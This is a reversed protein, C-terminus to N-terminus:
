LLEQLASRFEAEEDVALAIRRVPKRIGFLGEADVARRLEILVNPESRRPAVAASEADSAQATRAGEITDRAVRARFLLGYRVDLGDPGILVPRLGISQALGILWVMGYLSMGTAVWAGLRSWHGILLHVPLVEMLSALAIVYLLEVQGSKKHLTFARTDAPVHAKARWCFLAYYLINLEIGILRAIGPAPIVSELAARMSDVPDERRDATRRSRQRVKAVVYAILGAECLGGVSAAVARANSYLLSAHLAGLLVIPVLSGRGRIGPRVLLWYYIATIVAVLDATAAAAVVVRKGPDAISRVIASDVVNITLALLFFAAYRIRRSDIRSEM